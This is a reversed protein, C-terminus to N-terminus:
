LNGSFDPSFRWRFAILNRTFRKILQWRSLEEDVIQCYQIVGRGELLTISHKIDEFYPKYIGDFTPKPVAYHGLINVGEELDSVKSTTFFRKGM